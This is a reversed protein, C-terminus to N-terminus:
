RLPRGGGHFGGGSVGGRPTAPGGGRPIERGVHAPPAPLQGARSRSEFGRDSAPHADNRNVAHDFASSHGGEPRPTLGYGRFEKGPAPGEPKPGRSRDFVAQAGGQAAPSSWGRQGRAPLTGGHIRNAPDIRSIGGTKPDHFHNTVFGDHDHGHHHWHTRVNFDALVFFGPFWFDTWWFPYAVWTYMYAYDPPPAYYTVPPPGEDAYYSEEATANPYSPASVVGAYGGTTDPKVPLNYGSVDAQFAQLAENKGVSLKGSDAAQSIAAQLEGLIDPTVPYDAIWGNRPVIGSASLLDEAEAENETASLKLDAVLKVALTGERILPQSLPSNADPPVDSEANMLIPMMAFAMLMITLILLSKM